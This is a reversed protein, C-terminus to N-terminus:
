LGQCIRKEVNFRHKIKLFSQTIPLKPKVKRTQRPANISEESNSSLADVTVIIEKDDLTKKEGFRDMNGKENKIDSLRALYNSDASFNDGYYSIYGETIPVMVPREAIMKDLYGNGVMAIEAGSYSVATGFENLLIMDVM